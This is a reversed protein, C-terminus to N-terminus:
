TVGNENQSPYRPDRWRWNGSDCRRPLLNYYRHWRHALSYRNNELFKGTISDKPAVMFPLRNTRRRLTQLGGLVKGNRTGPLFSLHSSLFPPSFWHTYYVQNCHEAERQGTENGTVTKALIVMTVIILFLFSRGVALPYRDNRIIQEPALRRDTAGKEIDM